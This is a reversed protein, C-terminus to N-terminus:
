KKFNALWYKNKTYKPNNNIWDVSKKPIELEPPTYPKGELKALEYEAIQKDSLMVPIMSCLCQIHWNYWEFWKPYVGALGVCIPCRASAKHSNSLRIEKGIVFDFNGWNYADNKRYMSTIETRALRRANDIPRKYRGVGQGTSNIEEVLDKALENSSMGDRFSEKIINSIKSLSDDTVNWIKASPKYTLGEVKFLDQVKLNHLLKNNKAVSYGIGKKVADIVTSQITKDLKKLEREVWKLIARESYGSEIYNILRTYFAQYKQHLNSDTKTLLKLLKKEENTYNM